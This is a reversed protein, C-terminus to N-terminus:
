PRIEEPEPVHHVQTRQRTKPAVKPQSCHIKAAGTPVEAIVEVDWPRVQSEAGEAPMEDEAIGRSSPPILDGCFPVLDSRDVKGAHDLVHPTTHVSNELSRGIMDTANLAMPVHHAVLRDDGAGPNRNAGALLVSILPMRRLVDQQGMGMQVGLVDLCGEGIGRGAVDSSPHASRSRSEAKEDILVDMNAYRCQDGSESVMDVVGAGGYGNTGRILVNVVRSAVVFQGDDAMIAVEPLQASAVDGLEAHTTGPAQRVSRSM